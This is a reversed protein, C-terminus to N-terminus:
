SKTHTQRLKFQFHSFFSISSKHVFSKILYKVDDIPFSVDLQSVDNDDFIFINQLFLSTLVITPLNRLLVFFPFNKIQHFILM